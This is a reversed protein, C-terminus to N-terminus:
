PSPPRKGNPTSATITVQGWDWVTIFGESDVTAIGTNGSEWAVDQPATAPSVTATLRCSDGLELTATSGENIAVSAPVLPYRVKLTLVIKKGSGLRATIKVKGTKKLRIVGSKNVTAIKKASSLYSKVTKGPVKFQYETGLYVTKKANKKCSLVTPATTAEPEPSASPEATATEGPEPSATPEEAPLDGSEASLENVFVASVAVADDDPAEPAAWAEGESAPAAACQEEVVPADSGEALAFGCILLLALLTSVFRRM